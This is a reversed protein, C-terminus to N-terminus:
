IVRGKNGRQENAVMKREIEEEIDIGQLKALDCVRLIIDALESGLAETPKEGRCENVAEGVESAVLALLELVKTTSKHWGMREVWAYHKETIQKLTLM